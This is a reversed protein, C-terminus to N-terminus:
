TCCREPLPEAWNTLNLWETMGLEKHRWPSCCVLIPSPCSLEGLKRLSMDMLDTWGVMEDETTGKEKQRWDKGADFDKGTLWSKVDPPSLIPMQGELSYKPSIEKCPTPDYTFLCLYNKFIQLPGNYEGTHGLYAVVTPLIRPCHKWGLMMTM